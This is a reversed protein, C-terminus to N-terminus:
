NLVKFSSANTTATAMYVKGAATDIWMQGIFDPAVNPATTAKIIAEYHCIKPLEDLDISKAHVDGLNDRNATLADVDERLGEEIDNMQELDNPLNKIFDRWKTDFDFDIDVVSAGATNEFIIIGYDSITIQGNLSNSAVVEVALEYEVTGSGLATVFDAVSAITSDCVLSTGDLNFTLGSVGKIAFAGGAKITDAAVVGGSVIARFTNTAEGEEPEAGAEMTWSLANLLRYGIRRISQKTELNIEDFVYGVRRLTGGIATIASALDVQSANYAEYNDKTDRGNSWCLHACPNTQSAAFVVTCQGDQSPLYYTNGHDTHTPVAVGNQKVSSPVLINGQSDTFLYGNNKASTGYAGWEGKVCRFAFSTGNGSPILNFGLSIIKAGAATIGNETGRIVRIFGAGDKVDKDGGTTEMPKTQTHRVMASTQIDLDGAKDAYGASLTQYYGDKNAKKGELINDGAVRGAHESNDQQDIYRMTSTISEDIYDVLDVNVVRASIPKDSDTSELDDVIDTKPVYNYATVITRIQSETLFPAVATAIAANMQETTSYASLDITTSGIQEWTYRTEASEGNDITIFEDKVNKLKPNSSPVLYVKHMTSASATPLTEVVEYTFQKVANILTQVESKTYTDSKLYYNVLDNVSKTIFQSVDPIVGSAIDSAPIGGSPKQYFIGKAWDRIVGLLVDVAAQKIKAM